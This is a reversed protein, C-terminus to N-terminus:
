VKLWRGAPNCLDMRIPDLWVFNQILFNKLYGLLVHIAMEPNYVKHFSRVWLLKPRCKGRNEFPYNELEIFNPIYKVSYGKEIFHYRLYLSPSINVLANGFIIISLAPNNNLREPLNGGRLIPAYPINYLKALISIILAYYFSNTSFTDILILDAAKKNFIFFHIMDLLRVM